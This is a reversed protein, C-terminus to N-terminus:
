PVDIHRLRVAEAAKHGTESLIPSWTGIADETNHRFAQVLGDMLLQWGPVIVNTMKAGENLLIAEEAENFKRFRAM